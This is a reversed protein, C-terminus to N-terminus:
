NRPLMEQLLTILKPLQVTFFFEFTGLWILKLWVPFKVQYNMFGYIDFHEIWLGSKKLSIKM